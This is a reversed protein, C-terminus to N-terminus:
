RNWPQDAVFDSPHKFECVGGSGSAVTASAEAGDTLAAISTSTTAAPMDNMATCAAPWYRTQSVPRVSHTRSSRIPKGACRTHDLM